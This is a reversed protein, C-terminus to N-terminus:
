KGQVENVIWSLAKQRLMIEAVRNRGFESNYQKKLDEDEISKIEEEVKDWDIQFNQEEIIKAFVLEGSIREIAEKEWEKRLTEIDTKQTKLFDELKLGLDEIRHTYEHEKKDVEMKAMAKSINIKASKIAESMIDSIYKEEVMVKKRSELTRNIEKKLEELTKINQMKLSEVWKDDAKEQKEKSKKNTDELMNSLVKQVEEENVEPNEKKVKIKKFNPLKFSPFQIFTVQYEVGSDDVKEVRYELNTIPKSNESQLIKQTINPLLSNLTEEYLESGIKAELLNKPGKGPRFGQIQVKNKLKNFETEKIEDFLSKEVKIQISVDTGNNIKLDYTYRDTM